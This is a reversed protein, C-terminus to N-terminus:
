PDPAPPEPAAMAARIPAFYVDAEYANHAECRLAVHERTPVGGVIWPTLHHFELFAREECRRGHGEFACQGQDREWVAREVDAPIERSQAGIPRPRRPRSTASWAKKEASARLLGLAKAVIAAPDGSPIERRLLDQLVRLDDHAEEDLTVQLRYRAASLPVVSAVRPSPSTSPFSVTVSPTPGPPTDPFIVAGTQGPPVPAPDHRPPAPLKRVSAPVDASPFWCAIRKLVERLSSRISGGLLALHDEDTLHPALARVASMHLLGEALMPLIVPFRRAAHVVVMRDYAESESCHLVRRCYGFLSKFGYALHLKRAELEALHEILSATARRETAAM